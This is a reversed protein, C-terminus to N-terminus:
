RPGAVPQEHVFAVLDTLVEPDTEKPVGHGLNVIHGPAGRGSALVERVHAYRAEETAFLAAPDINGQLPVAGGLRRNAEALPLRQDVGVVDAGADHMAGLLEGTRVGFHIRPVGLDAVAELVRASWPQAGSAYAAPSLTGAWSDFLQLASAGAAVQARVFRASAEAVWDLLRGWTEPDSMMLAGTRLLDRSPGGEVLYSAVTFPAGCFGVLPTAGLEAVALAVGERVPELAAEYDDGLPPLAAVDAASRIPHEVVPGTGPVIEVGLGAVKLPVVIDSFFVGADVGHRRVPQCTIEAALDPTLCADLMATSGRAEKYEPLSRGAQRMFWVPHREPREGRAAALLPSAAAPTPADGGVPANGEGGMGSVSTPFVTRGPTPFFTASTADVRPSPSRHNREMAFGNHMM